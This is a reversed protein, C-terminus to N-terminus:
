DVHLTEMFRWDALAAFWERGFSEISGFYQNDSMHYVTVVAISM